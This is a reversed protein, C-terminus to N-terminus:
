IAEMEIGEESDSLEFAEDLAAQEDTSLVELQISMGDPEVLDDVIHESSHLAHLRGSSGNWLNTLDKRAYGLVLTPFVTCPILYTLAPQALGAMSVMMILSLTLGVFYGICGNLFYGHWAHGNLSMDFRYLFCLFFGPLIIDGLGLINLGETFVTPIQIAM